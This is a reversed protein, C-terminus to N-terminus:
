ASLAWRGTGRAPSRAAWSRNKSISRRRCMVAPRSESSTPERRRELGVLHDPRHAPAPDGLRLQRLQGGRRPLVQLGVGVADVGVDGARAGRGLHRELVGHQALLHRVVPDLLPRRDVRQGPELRHGPVQAAVVVVLHGAARRARRRELWCRSSRATGRRGRRGRVLRDQGRLVPLRRPWASCALRAACAAGAVGASGASALVDARDYASRRASREVGDRGQEPAAVADAGVRPDDGALRVVVPLGSSALSGCRPVPMGPMQYWIPRCQRVTERRVAREVDGAEGEGAQGADDDAVVLPDGPAEGVEPGSTM